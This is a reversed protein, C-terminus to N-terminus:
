KQALSDSKSPTLCKIQRFSVCHPGECTTGTGLQRTAIAPERLFLIAESFGQAVCFADATPKGCTLQTTLCADIRAGDVAPLFYTRVTAQAQSASTTVILIGLIAVASKLV